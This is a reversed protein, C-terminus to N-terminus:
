RSLQQPCDRTGRGEQQERSKRWEEEEERDLRQLQQEVEEPVTVELLNELGAEPEDGILVQIVRHCARLVEPDREWGHLERLVVYTGRARLLRRGPGTATLQPSLAPTPSLGEGPCLGLKEEPM